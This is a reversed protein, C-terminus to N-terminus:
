VRRRMDMLVSPREPLEGGCVEGKPVDGRLPEMELPPEAAVSSDTMSSPSATPETVAGVVGNARRILKPARAKRSERM